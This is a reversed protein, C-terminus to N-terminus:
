LSTGLNLRLLIRTLPEVKGEALLEVPRRGDLAPLRTTLWERAAEPSMAELMEDQLERLAEMRSVFVARPESEGSRWRHLTSEDAGLAAAIQRFTLGLVDHADEICRLQAVSLNVSM